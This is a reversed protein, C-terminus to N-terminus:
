GPLVTHRVQDVPHAAIERGAQAVTAPPCHRPARHSTVATNRRRGPQQPQRDVQAVLDGRDSRNSVPRVSPRGSIFGLDAVALITIARMVERRLPHTLCVAETQDHIRQVPPASRHALAPADGRLDDIRTTTPL